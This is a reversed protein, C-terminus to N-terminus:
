DNEKSRQRDFFRNAKGNEPRYAILNGKADDLYLKGCTSCEWALRSTEARRVSNRLKERDEEKKEIAEDVADLFDFYNKDGIVYAKYSLYDTQDPIIEGCTCKIKM